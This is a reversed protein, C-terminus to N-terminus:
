TRTMPKNAMHCHAARAGVDFECVNGSLLVDGLSVFFVNFQYSDYACPRGRNHILKPSSM